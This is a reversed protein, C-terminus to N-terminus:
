KKICLNILIEVLRVLLNGIVIFIFIPFVIILLLSYLIYGLWTLNEYQFMTSEFIDRLEIGGEVLTLIFGVMFGIAGEIWLVFFIFNM